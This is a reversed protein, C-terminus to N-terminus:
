ARVRFDLWGMEVPVGWAPRCPSEPVATGPRESANGMGEAWPVVELEHDHVSPVDLGDGEPLLGEISPPFPPPLCPFPAHLPSSGSKECPRSPGGGEKARWLAGLCERPHPCAGRFATLERQAAQPAKGV